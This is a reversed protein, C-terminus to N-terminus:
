GDAPDKVKAREAQQDRTWAHQRFKWPNILFFLGFVVWFGITTELTHPALALLMGIVVCTSAVIQYRLTRYRVHARDDMQELAEIVVDDGPQGQENM